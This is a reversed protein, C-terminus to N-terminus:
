DSENIFGFGTTNLEGLGAGFALKLLRYEPRTRCEYDFEWTTGIVQATEDDYHLPVAVEKRPRCGSFFPRSPPESDYYEEYKAALNNEVETVFADTPHEQRWYVDDYEPDIGYEECRKRPIRVVIPTGTEITGTSDPTIEFTSTRDVRYRQDGVELTSDSWIADNVSEILAENPSAVLWTRSDGEQMDQPPFINSFTLFKFPRERHIFEYGASELYSYLAGQLKVHYAPNYAHDQLATLRVLCRM